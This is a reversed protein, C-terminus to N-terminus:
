LTEERSIVWKDLYGDRYESHETLWTIVEEGDGIIAVHKAIIRLAEGITTPYKGISAFGAAVENGSNKAIGRRNTRWEYVEFCLGSKLPRIQYRDQGNEDRVTIIM